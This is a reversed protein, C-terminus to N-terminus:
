PGGEESPATLQEILGERYGRLHEQVATVTAETKRADYGRQYAEDADASSKLRTEELWCSGVQTVLWGTFALGLVVYLTTRNQDTMTVRM